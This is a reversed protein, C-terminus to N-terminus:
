LAKLFIFFDNGNKPTYKSSIKNEQHFLDIKKFNEVAFNKFDVAPQLLGSQYTVENCLDMLLGIKM